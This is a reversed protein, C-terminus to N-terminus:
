VLFRVETQNWAHRDHHYEGLVLLVYKMEKEEEEEEHGDDSEEEEDGLGLVRESSESLAVGVDWRESEEDFDKGKVAEVREGAAESREGGRLVADCAVCSANVEVYIYIM